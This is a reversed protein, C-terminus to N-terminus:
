NNSLNLMFNQMFDKVVGYKGNGLKKRHGSLDSDYPQPYFIDVYHSPKM